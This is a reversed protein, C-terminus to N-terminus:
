LSEVAAAVAEKSVYNAGSIRKFKLKGSKQLRRLFGLTLDMEKVVVDLRKLGLGKLEDPAERRRKRRSVPAAVPTPTTVTSM